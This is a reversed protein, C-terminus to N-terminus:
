SSGFDAPFDSVEQIKEKQSGNLSYTLKLRMKLSVKSPNAITIKQTILTGQGLVTGSPPDLTLTLSKPVAAQFIFDTIQNQPNKSGVRVQMTISTITSYALLPTFVIWVSEDAFALASKGYESMIGDQEARERLTSLQEAKSM